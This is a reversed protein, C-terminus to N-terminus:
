LPGCLVIARIMGSAELADLVRIIMPIGCIPVFAKCAMGSKDAVPDNSTRDAALVLAVFKDTKKV